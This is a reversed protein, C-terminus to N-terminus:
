DAIGGLRRQPAAGRGHKDSTLFRQQGFHHRFGLQSPALCLAVAPLPHYSPVSTLLPTHAPPPPYLLSLPPTCFSFLSLPSHHPLYSLIFVSPFLSITSGSPTVPGTILLLRRRSVGILAGLPAISDALLPPLFPLFIYPAAGESAHPPPLPQDRSPALQLGDVNVWMQQRVSFFREIFM